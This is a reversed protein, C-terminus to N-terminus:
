EIVVRSLSVLKNHGSQTFHGVKLSKIPYDVFEVTLASVIGAQFGWFIVSSTMLTSFILIKLSLRGLMFSIKSLTSKGKM